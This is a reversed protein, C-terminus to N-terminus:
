VSFYTLQKDETRIYRSDQRENPLGIVGPWPVDLGMFGPVGMGWGWGPTHAAAGAERM